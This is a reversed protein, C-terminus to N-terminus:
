TPTPTPAPQEPLPTPAPTGPPLSAYHWVGAPDKVLVIVTGDPVHPPPGSPLSNDPFAPNHPPRGGVHPPREGPLGQDPRNPWTPRGYGPDVGGGPRGFGPDVGGELVHMHYLGSEGLPRLTVVPM